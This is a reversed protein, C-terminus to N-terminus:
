RTYRGRGLEVPLLSKGDIRLAMREFPPANVQDVDISFRVVGSRVPPLAVKVEQGPVYPASLTAEVLASSPINPLPEMGDGSTVVELEAGDAFRLAVRVGRADGGSKPDIVRVALGTKQAAEAPWPQTDLNAFLPRNKPPQPAVLVIEEGERRWTGQAFQDLAGYSIYWEFSGDARLLLESGTEMVGSLYYHGVFEPDIARGANPLNKADREQAGAMPAQLILCGAM